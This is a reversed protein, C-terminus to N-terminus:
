AFPGGQLRELEDPPLTAAERLLVAAIKKDHDPDANMADFYSRRVLNATSGESPKYGHHITRGRVFILDGAARVDRIYAEAPFEAVAAQNEIDLM